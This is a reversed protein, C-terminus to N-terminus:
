FDCVSLNILRLDSALQEADTFKIASFGMNLASSVNDARDDIFICKDSTTNLISLMRHFAEPNPKVLKEKFSIFKKDFLCDPSIEKVVQDWHIEDVNTMCASKINFSKLTKLIDIVDTKQRGIISCLVNQVVELTVEEQRENVLNVIKDLYDEKSLIGAVAKETLSYRDESVRFEEILIKKLEEYKNGFSSRALYNAKEFDLEILVGGIDWIVWEYM